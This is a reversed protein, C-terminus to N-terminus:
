LQRNVVLPDTLLIYAWKHCLFACVHEVVPLIKSGSLSGSVCRTTSSTNQASLQYKLAPPQHFFLLRRRRSSIYIRNQPLFFACVYRKASESKSDSLCVSACSENTTLKSCVISLEFSSQFSFSPSTLSAAIYIDENSGSSVFM